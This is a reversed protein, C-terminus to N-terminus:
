LSKKVLFDVGLIHLKTWKQGLFPWFILKLNKLKCLTALAHYSDFFDLIALFPCFKGSIVISVLKPDNRGNRPNSISFIFIPENRASIDAPRLPSLKAILKWIEGGRVNQTMKQVQPLRDSRVAGFTTWNM